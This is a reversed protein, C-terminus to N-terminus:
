CDGDVNPMQEDKGIVSASARSEVTRRSVKAEECCDGGGSGVGGGGGV